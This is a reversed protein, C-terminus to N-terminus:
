FVRIFFNFTLIIIQSKYPFVEQFPSSFPLLSFFFFVGPTIFFQVRTKFITLMATESHDKTGLFIFIFVFTILTVTTITGIHSNVPFHFGCFFSFQCYPQLQPCYREFFGQKYQFNINQM